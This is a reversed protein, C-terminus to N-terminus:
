AVVIWRLQIGMLRADAGSVRDSPRAADPVHISVTLGGAARQGDIPMRIELADSGVVFEVAPGLDVSVFARRNGTGPVGQVGLTVTDAGDRARAFGLLATRATWNWAPEPGHLGAWGQAVAGLTDLTGFVRREGRRLTTMPPVAPVTTAGDAAGARDRGGRTLRNRARSWHAFHDQFTAQGGAAVQDLVAVESTDVSRARLAATDRLRQALVMLELAGHREFAADQASAAGMLKHTNRAHQRWGVLPRALYHHTGVLSARFPLLLDPGYPCLEPDVTPFDEFLSRHWASTAGLWQSSGVSGAAAVPDQLVADPHDTDLLGIPTGDEALLVANSTVLRCRPDADFCALTADIRGPLALDDSDAQILVPARAHRLIPSVIGMLGLPAANRMLTACVDPYCALVQRAAALSRDMSGDDIVLLEIDPRWQRLLSHLQAGIYAENDLVGIVVTARPAGRPGVEGEM